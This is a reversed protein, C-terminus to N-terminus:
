PSRRATFPMCARLAAWVGALGGRGDMPKWIAWGSLEGLFMLLLASLNIISSSLRFGGCGGKRVEARSAARSRQFNAKEFALAMPYCWWPCALAASGFSPQW